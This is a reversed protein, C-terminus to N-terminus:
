CPKWEQSGAALATLRDAWPHGSARCRPALFGPFSTGTSLSAWRDVLYGMKGKQKISARYFTHGKGDRVPKEGEITPFQVTCAERWARHVWAPSYIVSKMRRRKGLCNSIGQKNPRQTQKQKYAQFFFTLLVLLCIHPSPSAPM